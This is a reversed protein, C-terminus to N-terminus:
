YGGPRSACNPNSCGPRTKTSRRRPSNTSSSFASWGRQWVKKEHDPHDGRAIAAGPPAQVRLQLEGVEPGVAFTMGFSSAFLAPKAASDDGEAQDGHVDDGEVAARDHRGADYAVTGRPALIGALYRM